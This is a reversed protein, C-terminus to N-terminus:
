LSQIKRPRGPRRQRIAVTADPAAGHLAHDNGIPVGLRLGNRITTVDAAPLAEAVLKRYNEFRSSSDGLALFCEHPEVIRLSRQGSNERHSSWRYDAPSAVMGARVPNLEIYRYCSLCYHESNILSSRFRGEWLQGQRGFRENLKRSYGGAVGHMTRSIGDPRTPTMLLHVHNTM